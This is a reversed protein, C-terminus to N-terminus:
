HRGCSQERPRRMPLCQPLLRQTAVDRIWPGCRAFALDLRRRRERPNGRRRGCLIHHVPLELRGLGAHRVSLLCNGLDSGRRHVAPRCGATRGHHGAGARRRHLHNLHHLGGGRPQRHQESAPRSALQWGRGALVRSNGRRCRRLPHGSVATLTPTTAPLVSATSSAGGDATQFATGTQNASQGVAVCTSSGTCTVSEFANTVGPGLPPLAAPANPFPSTPTTTTPPTTTGSPASFAAVAGTTAGIAAMAAVGIVWRKWSRRHPETTRNPGARGKVSRRKPARRDFPSSSRM